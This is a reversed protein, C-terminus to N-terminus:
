TRDPNVAWQHGELVSDEGCYLERCYRESVGQATLADDYPLEGTQEDLPLNKAELESEKVFWVKPVYATEDVDETQM